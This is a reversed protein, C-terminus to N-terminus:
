SDEKAKKKARESIEIGLANIAEILLVKAEPDLSDEFLKREESSKIEERKKMIDLLRMQELSSIHDKGMRERVNNIIFLLRLFNIKGEKGILMDKEIGSEIKNKFREIQKDITIRLEKNKRPKDGRNKQKLM